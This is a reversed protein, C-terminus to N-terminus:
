IIFGRIRSISPEAEQRGTITIAVMTITDAMTIIGQAMTIVVGAMDTHIIIDAIINIMGMIVVITVDIAM